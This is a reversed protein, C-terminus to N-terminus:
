VEDRLLELMAVLFGASASCDRRCTNYGYMAMSGGGAGKRKQRSTDAISFPNYYEYIVGATEYGRCAAELCRSVIEAAKDRKGAKLLGYALKYNEEFCVAGRYFDSEFLKENLAVSPVGYRAGFTSKDSLHAIMANLRVPTCIGGFVPVFGAITKIKNHKKGIVGRDYYFKDGEDYLFDNVGLRIREAIVNWYLVDNNENILKSMTCMADVSM